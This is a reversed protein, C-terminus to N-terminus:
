GGWECSNAIDGRHGGVKSRASRPSIALLARHLWEVADCELTRRLRQTVIEDWVGGEAGLSLKVGLNLLLKVYDVGALNCDDALSFHECKSAFYKNFSFELRDLIKRSFSDIGEPL